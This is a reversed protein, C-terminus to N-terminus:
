KELKLIRDTAKGIAQIGAETQLGVETLEEVSIGINDEQEGTTQGSSGESSSDSDRKHQLGDYLKLKIDLSDEEEIGVKVIVLGNKIMMKNNAMGGLVQVIHGAFIVAEGVTYGKEALLNHIEIAKRQAQLLKTKDM